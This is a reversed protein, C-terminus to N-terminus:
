CTCTTTSTSTHLSGYGTREVCSVTHTDYVNFTLTALTPSQNTSVIIFALTSFIQALDTGDISTEPTSLTPSDQEVETPKVTQSQRYMHRSYFYYFTSSTYMHLLLYSFITSTIFCHFTSLFLLLMKPTAYFPCNKRLCQQRPLGLWVHLPAFLCSILQPEFGGLVFQPQLGNVKARNSTENLPCGQM